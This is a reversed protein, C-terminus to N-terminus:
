GLCVVRMSINLFSFSVRKVDDCTPCCEGEDGAGYCDGCEEEEPELEKNGDGGEGGEKDMRMMARKAELAEGELLQLGAKEASERLHDESQMTGGLEFRSRRGIMKGRRDLRHKWVHHRRDLHLSQSQGTPDNADISLLACPIKPFTIDFEMELGAPSTANVHVHDVVTTNQINYLYESHLLYLISLLTLLSVVAGSSTQTTFESSVATHRDLSRLKSLLSSPDDSTSSTSGNRNPAPQMMQLFNVENPDTRETSFPFRPM